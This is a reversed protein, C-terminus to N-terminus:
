EEEGATDDAADERERQADRWGENWALGCAEAEPDEPDYPNLDLGLGGQFAARGAHYADDEDGRREPAPLAMGPAPAPLGPVVEADVVVGPARRQQPLDRPHELDFLEGQDPDPIAMSIEDGRKISFGLKDTQKHKGLDL